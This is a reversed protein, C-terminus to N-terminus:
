VFFSDLELLFFQVVISHVYTCNLLSPSLSLSLSIGLNWCIFPTNHNSRAGEEFGASDLSLYIVFFHSKQSLINRLVQLIM